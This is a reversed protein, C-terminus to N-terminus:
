QHVGENLNANGPKKEAHPQVDMPKSFHVDHYPTYRSRLNKFSEGDMLFALVFWVFLLSPIAITSILSKAEFKLHMFYAIIYFAKWLMLVIIVGKTFTKIFTGDQWNLRFIIYGLALEVITLVSLYATIKWVERKAAAADTHNAM